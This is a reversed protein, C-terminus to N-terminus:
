IDPRPRYHQFPQYRFPNRFVGLVLPHFQDNQAAMSPITQSLPADAANRLFNDQARLGRQQNNPRM